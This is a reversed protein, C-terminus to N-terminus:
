WERNLEVDVRPRVLDEISPFVDQSKLPNLQQLRFNM